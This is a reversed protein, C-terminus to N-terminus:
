DLDDFNADFTPRAPRADDESVLIPKPDGSQVYESITEWTETSLLKGCQTPTLLKKNHTRDGLIPLIIAEAAGPDIWKKPPRRGDVAKLGPTPEGNLADQLTQAYHQDLWKEIMGKHALLNSRQDPTMTSPLELNEIPQDLDDLIMDFFELNFKDYTECGEPTKRRACWLCGKATATRSALPDQTLIAAIRAEEGFALLEDLTTRWEGGGGSCRPQDIEILFDTAKTIHRAINQWFGLAYLMLQKNRVPSVAIGRGYKLDNIVILDDTIIARDLTGSQGEGLWHSLDVKQEGYFTGPYERLQDIGYQLHEADDQDFDFTWRDVKLRSGIFNYADLGTSLCDDSVQHAATGEAAAESTENPLGEIAAPYAACNM